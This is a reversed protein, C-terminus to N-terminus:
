GNIGLPSLKYLEGTSRIRDQLAYQQRPLTKLYYKILRAKIGRNNWRLKLSLLHLKFLSQHRIM